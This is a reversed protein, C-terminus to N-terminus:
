PWGAVLDLAKVRRGVDILDDFLGDIPDPNGRSRRCGPTERRRRPRPTPPRCCAPRPRGISPRASGSRAKTGMAPRWWARRWVARAAEADEVVAADGDLDQTRTVVDVADGIDVDVGVVAVADEVGELIIGLDEDAVDVLVAAKEIRAGPPRVLGARACGLAGLEVDRQERAGAVVGEEIGPIPDLGVDVGGFGLEDDELAAGVTEGAIGEVWRSYVAAACRCAM